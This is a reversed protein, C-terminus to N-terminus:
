FSCYAQVPDRGDQRIWYMGSPSDPNVQAVQDCSKAAYSAALGLPYVEFEASLLQLVDVIIEERSQISPCSSGGAM